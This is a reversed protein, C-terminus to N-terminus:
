DRFSYYEALEEQIMQLKMEVMDIAYQCQIRYQVDAVADDLDATATKDKKKGM